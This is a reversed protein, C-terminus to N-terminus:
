RVANGLSQLHRTKPYFKKAHAPNRGIIGERINDYRYALNLKLSVFAPKFGISFVSQVFRRLIRDLRYFQAYLWDAGEQLEAAKMRAPRIVCHRFDYHSWNFDLIRGEKKLDEFLLTGPLPTMINLQLADIHTKQLFRLTREFVGPDDEDMGVIMGAVVGIGQRRIASLRAQYRCTDNFTKSVAALNKDNVTEIGVFIGICGADRMQILLDANDAITISCQSVWRKGLPKLAVFLRSAYDPDAIINDDVFMFYKPTQRIEELVRELPRSRHLGRHFATVSCYRCGHPCGRGTEVAHITSYFKANQKALDRRPFPTARLDCPTEHQYRRKMQGSQLDFLLQQWLVEADGAIVADFHESVEDPCLTPHFGGAVVIKGRKRFERAIEYARNALATMFTVGVLDADIDFKLAEINEDIIKVEHESPTLGAVVTLPLLSFRFMARRPVKQNNKIIRLHDAAPLVLLIKM